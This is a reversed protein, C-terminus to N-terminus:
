KELATTGPEALGTRLCRFVKAVDGALRIQQRDPNASRAVSRHPARQKLHTLIAQIVNPDTVDVIAAGPKSCFL